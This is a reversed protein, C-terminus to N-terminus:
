LRLLDQWLELGRESAVASKSIASTIGHRIQLACRPATIHGSLASGDTMVVDYSMTVQADTLASVTLSGSASRILTNPDDSAKNIVVLCLRTVANHDLTLNGDCYYTGENMGIDWFTTNPSWVTPMLLVDTGTNDNGRISTDSCVLAANSLLVGGVTGNLGTLGNESLTPTVKTSSYM